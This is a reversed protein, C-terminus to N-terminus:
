PGLDLRALTKALGNGFIAVNECHHIIKLFSCYPRNKARCPGTNEFPESWNGPCCM